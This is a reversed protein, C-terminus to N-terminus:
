FKIIIIFENIKILKKRNKIKLLLKVCIISLTKNLLLLYFPYKTIKDLFEIMMKQLIPNIKGWKLLM